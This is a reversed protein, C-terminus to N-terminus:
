ETRATKQVYLQQVANELLSYIQGRSFYVECSVM